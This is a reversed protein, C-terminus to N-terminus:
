KIGLGGPRTTLAGKVGLQSPDRALKDTFVRVDDLIPRIRVTAQEINGVTRKIQFYLDEDELLKRITGNGNNIMEGLRDVQALSRDLNAFSSLIQEVLEEGRDGFPATFREVNSITRDLSQFTEGANSVAEEAAAGVREFQQMTKRTSALAEEAEDLVGPLTELTENLLARLQPDAVIGRIEAMADKFENVAQGASGLLEQLNNENDSLLGRMSVALEHVSSGANEMAAGARQVTQLTDRLEDELGNIGLLPDSVAHRSLIYDGDGYFSALLEEEPPDWQQNIPIPTQGVPAQGDLNELAAALDKRFELKADGTVLSGAGIKPVYARTLKRDADIALKLRVGGEPRLDIQSIRGIRVGDRLVPTNVSIGAASDVDVLLSYSRALATPFAGFLFTLIVGVGIASLVLVGVGFKLKADDM